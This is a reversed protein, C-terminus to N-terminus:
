DSRYDHEGVKIVNNQRYEVSKRKWFPTFLLGTISDERWEDGDKGELVWACATNGRKIVKLRCCDSLGFAFADLAEAEDEFEEHWGDYGVTFGASHIKLWVSFGKETPPDISILSGKAQYTLQPYKKLKAKIKDIANM